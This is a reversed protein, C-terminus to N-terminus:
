ENRLASFDGKRFGALIALTMCSACTLLVVLGLRLQIGVAVQSETAFLHTVGSRRLVRALERARDRGSDGLTPDREDDTNKEAHRVVFVQIPRIEEQTPPVDSPTRLFPAGLSILGGLLAFPKWGRPFSSLKM